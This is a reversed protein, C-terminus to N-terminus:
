VGRFQQEAEFAVQLGAQGGAAPIQGVQGAPRGLEGAGGATEGGEEVQSAVQTVAPGLRDAAVGEGASEPQGVVQDLVGPRHEVQHAGVRAHPVGPPQQILFWLFWLVGASGTETTGSFVLPLGRHGRWPEGDVLGHPVVPGM